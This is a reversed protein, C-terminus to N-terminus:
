RFTNMAITGKEGLQGYGLQTCVVSADVEDWDTDCVTGWVRNYCIEVRGERESEGGVLRVDGDGCSSTGTKHKSHCLTLSQGDSNNGRCIVGADESHTCGNVGTMNVVCNLLRTDDNKCQANTLHIPGSGEGFYAARTPIGRVTYM